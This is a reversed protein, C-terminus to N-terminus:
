TCEETWVFPVTKKLLTTLPKALTAFNPIFPRQYGLVGLIKRLDKVNRPPRPWESITNIKDPSITIGTGTVRLGLFDIEPVKFLCKSPKLFLHNDCLIIFFDRTIQCHLQDEGAKTMILCDDMYNKFRPGYKAYLPQFIHNMFRQMAAPCNMLGFPMVCPEYLGETTKVALFKRAEEKVGLNYYGEQLDFKSFKVMVITDELIINIRPLPSVDKVMIANIRRYDFL